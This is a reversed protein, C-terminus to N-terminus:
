FGGLSGMQLENQPIQEKMAGVQPTVKGGPGTPGAAGPVPPPPIRVFYKDLEKKGLKPLLDKFLQNGNFM